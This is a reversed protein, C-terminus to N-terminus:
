ALLVFFIAATFSYVATKVSSSAQIQEPENETFECMNGLYGEDCACSSGSCYGNAGCMEEDCVSDIGLNNVAAIKTAYKREEPDPSQGKFDLVTGCEANYTKRYTEVCGVDGTSAYDFACAELYFDRGVSSIKNDTIVSECRQNAVAADVQAYSKVPAHKYVRTPEYKKYDTIRVCGPKVPPEPEPKPITVCDTGNLKKGASCKIATCEYGILEEGAACKIPTCDNVILEEGVACKIETCYDGILKEGAACKIPTCDNVILEEGRWGASKSANVEKWFRATTANSILV